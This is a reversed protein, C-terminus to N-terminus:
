NMPPPYKFVELFMPRRDTDVDLFKDAIIQCSIVKDTIALERYIEFLKLRVIDIYMNLEKNDRSSGIAMSKEVSWQDVHVNRKLSFEKRVGGIVIPAFVTATNDNRTKNKRIIFFQKLLKM